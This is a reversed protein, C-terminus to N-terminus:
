EADKQKGRCANKREEKRRDKMVDARKSRRAIYAEYNRSKTKPVKIKIKAM